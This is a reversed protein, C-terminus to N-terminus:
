CGKCRAIATMVPIVLPGGLGGWDFWMRITWEWTEGCGASLPVNAFAASYQGPVGTPALTGAPAPGCILPITGLGITICLEAAIVTNVPLVDVKITSAFFSTCSGDLCVGDIDNNILLNGTIVISHGPLAPGGPFGVHTIKDGDAECGVQGAANSVLLFMSAIITIWVSSIKKAVAEEEKTLNVIIACGSVSM